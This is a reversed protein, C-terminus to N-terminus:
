EGYETLEISEATAGMSVLREALAQMEEHTRKRGSDILLQLKTLLTDCQASWPISGQNAWQEEFAKWHEQKRVDVDFANKMFGAAYRNATEHDGGSDKGICALNCQWTWAYDDDAQLAAKLESLPNHEGESM